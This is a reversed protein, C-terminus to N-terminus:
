KEMAGGTAAELLNQETAEGRNFVASIKGKYLVLIRDSVGLVEMTESSVMLVGIGQYTLQNLITFIEAKAGVDVGRTPEDLIIVKPQMALLRGLLVKQQNGGSLTAIKTANKSTKIHLDDIASKARSHSKKQSIVQYNCIKELSGLNINEEVGLDM